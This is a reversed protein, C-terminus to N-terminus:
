ALNAHADERSYTIHSNNIELTPAAGAIHRLLAGLMHYIDATESAQDALTGGALSARAIDTYARASRLLGHSQLATRLLEEQGTLAAGWRQIAEIDAHASTAARAIQAALDEIQMAADQARQAAAMLDTPVFRSAAAGVGRGELASLWAPRAFANVDDRVCATRSFLRELELLGDAQSFRTRYVRCGGLDDPALSSRMGLELETLAAVTEASIRAACPQSPCAGHPSCPFCDSDPEVVLHGEGYPATEGALASGVTLDIVRTGVAAAIHMPGSDNSLLLRCHSLLLALQPVSTKGILNRVRPIGEFERALPADSRGGILVFEVDSHKALRRAVERYQAVPWQKAQQSAGPHIAIWHAATTTGSCSAAPLDVQLDRGATWEVGDVCNAYIDVLNFQCWPRALNTAFFYRLWPSNVRQLGERDLTVGRGQEGALLNCLVMSPRTHTLNWVETFNQNRLKDVFTRYFSVARALDLAKGAGLCPLLDELKVAHVADVGPVLAAVDTFCSEVLMHIEADPHKLRLRRFFPISQIIDGMRTLSIVLIKSQSPM